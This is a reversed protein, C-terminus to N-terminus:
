AKQDVLQIQQEAFYERMKVMEETPWQRVIEGTKKDILKYVFTNLHDLKSIELQVDATAHSPTVPNSTITQPLDAPNASASSAPPSNQPRQFSAESETAVTANSVIDVM